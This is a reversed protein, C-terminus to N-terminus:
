LFNFVKNTFNFNTQNINEAIPPLSSSSFYQTENTSNKDGQTLGFYIALCAIGIILSLCTAIAIMKSRKNKFFVNTASASPLLPPPSQELNLNTTQNPIKTESPSIANKLYNISISHSENLFISYNNLFISENGKEM